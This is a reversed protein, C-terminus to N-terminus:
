FSPGNLPGTNRCRCRLLCGIFAIGALDVPRHQFLTPLPQHSPKRSRSRCRFLIVCVVFAIGVFGLRWLHQFFLPLAKQQFCVPLTHQQFLVALAQRSLRRSGRLAPRWFSAGDLPGSSRCRFLSLCDIFVM